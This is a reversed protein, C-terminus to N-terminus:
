QWRYNEFSWEALGKVEQWRDKETSSGLLTIIISNEGKVIQTTLCYGAEELFGTKAGLIEYGYNKDNIFTSLLDNTTVAKRLRGSNLISFNYVRQRTVKAIEPQSFVEKALLSLEYATSVNGPELGTPEVFKTNQLGLEVAKENMLNVFEGLELGTSSALAVAAENTSSVLTLNFLDSVTVQEGPLLYVIGGVRADDKTITVVKEWGPNHELFVLATMLKTISALPRVEGANKSFLIKGTQEDLVVASKATVAIGLSEPNVKVPGALPPGDVSEAVPVTPLFGAAALISLIIFQTLFNFM